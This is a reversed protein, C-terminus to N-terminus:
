LKIKIQENRTILTIQEILYKISNIPKKISESQFLKM